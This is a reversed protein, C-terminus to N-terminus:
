PVRGDRKPQAALRGAIRRWAPLRGDRHVRIDARLGHDEQLHAIGGREQQQFQRVPVVDIDIPICNDIAGAQRNEAHMPRELGTPKIKENKLLEINSKILLPPLQPALQDLRQRLTEESPISKIGLMGGYYEPEEKLENVAGYEPKGQSLMGIYSGLVDSNKIKPNAREKTKLADAKEYLSTKGILHGVMSLGGPTILIENSLRVIINKLDIM